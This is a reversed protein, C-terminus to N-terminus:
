EVVEGQAIRQVHSAHKIVFDVYGDIDKGGGIGFRYFSIIMMSAIADNAKASKLLDAFILRGIKNIKSYDSRAMANMYYWGAKCDGLNYLKKLKNVICDQKITNTLTNLAMADLVDFLEKNNQSPQPSANIIFMLISVCFALISKM